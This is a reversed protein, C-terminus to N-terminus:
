WCSCPHSPCLSSWIMRSAMPDYTGFIDLFGTGLMERPESKNGTCYGKLLYCQNKSTANNHEMSKYQNTLIWWTDCPAVVEGLCISNFCMWVGNAKHLSRLALSKATDRPVKCTAWRLSQSTSSRSEHSNKLWFFLSVLPFGYTSQLPKGLKQHSLLHLQSCVSM